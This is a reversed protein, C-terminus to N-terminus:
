TCKNIWDSMNEDDYYLFNAFCGNVGQDCCKQGAPAYCISDSESLKYWPWGVKIGDVICPITQNTIESQRLILQEIGDSSKLFLIGQDNITLEYTYPPGLQDTTFMINDAPGKVVLNGGSLLVARNGLGRTGTSIVPRGSVYITMNGDSEMLLKANTSPSQIFQSAYLTNTNDSASHLLDKAPNTWVAVPNGSLSKPKIVPASKKIKPLGDSPWKYWIDTIILIILIVVIYTHIM